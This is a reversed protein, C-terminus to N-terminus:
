REGRARVADKRPADAYGAVHECCWERAAEISDFVDSDRCSGIRSVSDVHEGAHFQRLTEIYAYHRIVVYKGDIAEGPRHPHVQVSSLVRDDADDFDAFTIEGPLSYCERGDRPDYWITEPEDHGAYRTHARHTHNELTVGIEPADTGTLDSTTELTSQDANM